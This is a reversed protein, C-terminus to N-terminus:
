GAPVAVGNFSCRDGIGDAILCANLSVQATRTPMVFMVNAAERVFEGDPSSPGGAPSTGAPAAAEFSELDTLDPDGPDAGSARIVSGVFTTAEAFTFTISLTTRRGRRSRM